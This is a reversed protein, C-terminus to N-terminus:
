LRHPSFSGQNHKGCLGSAIRHSAIWCFLGRKMNAIQLAVPRPLLADDPTIKRPCPPPASCISIGRGPTQSKQKKGSAKTWPLSDLYNRSSSDARLLCRAAPSLAPVYATDCSSTLRAAPKGALYMLRSRSYLGRRADDRKCSRTVTQQQTKDPIVALHPRMPM